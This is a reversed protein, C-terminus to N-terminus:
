FILRDGSKTFSVVDVTNGNITSSSFSRSQGNGSVTVYILTAESTGSFDNVKVQYTGDPANDNWFINEPGYGDLDDRDLEGGSSSAFTSYSIEEGNPDIVYLDQDSANNWSLSVQLAGTGLRLVNVCSSVINSVNGNADYVCFNVCFEGQDVNTPIGLPLQLNGSNGSSSNSYPVNFYNGAGDVQVYCGGLNGNVNSYDFNLPATSGNSSNLDPAPNIVVPASSSNSPPPPTGNNQQSGSPMILVESIANPDSPNILQPTVPDKDCSYLFAFAALLFFYMLNKM